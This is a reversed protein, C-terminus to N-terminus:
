ETSKHQRFGNIKLTVTLSEKKTSKGMTIKEINLLQKAVSVDHIFRLINILEGQLQLTIGIRQGIVPEQESEELHQSALTLQHSKIIKRLLELLATQATVYSPQQFLSKMMIEEAQLYEQEAKQWNQEAAQLAQLRSVKRIKQTMQQHQQHHWQMYPSIVGSWLIILITLLSGWRVIPSDMGQIDRIHAIYQKISLM